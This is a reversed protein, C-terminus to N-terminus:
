WWKKRKFFALMAAAITIVPIFFLLAYQVKKLRFLASPYNFFFLLLLPATTNAGLYEIKSWFIRGPLTTSSIDLMACLNWFTIALMALVIWKKGPFNARLQIVLLATLSLLIAVLFYHSYPTFAFHM